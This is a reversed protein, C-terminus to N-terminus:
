SQVDESLWNDLGGNIDISLSDLIEKGGWCLAM